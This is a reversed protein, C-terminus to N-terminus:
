RCILVPISSHAVVNRAQSGLLLQALGRRGHSAMVILDCARANATELIGDAPYRERVHVTSCAVGAQTAMASAKSLIDAANAAMAKEYENFPFAIAAEGMVKTAWPETVTVITVRAALVQALSLGQALAKGALDSGDTAILIHKYM